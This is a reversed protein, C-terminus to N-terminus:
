AEPSPEGSHSVPWDPYASPARSARDAVAASALGLALFLTLVGATELVGNLLPSRFPSM